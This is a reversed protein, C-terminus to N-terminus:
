SWGGASLLMRRLAPYATAARKEIARELAKVDDIRRMLEMVLIERKRELLEYGEEALALREKERLLNSKTPAVNRSPV